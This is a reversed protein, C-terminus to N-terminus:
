NPTTRLFLDTSIPSTKLEQYINFVVNVIMGIVKLLCGLHTTYVSLNSFELALFVTFVTSTYPAWVPYATSRDPRESNEATFYSPSM